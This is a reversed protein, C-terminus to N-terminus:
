PNEYVVKASSSSVRRWNINEQKLFDYIVNKAGQVYASIFKGCFANISKASLFPWILIAFILQPIKDGSRKSVGITSLISFLKVQKIAEQLENDVSGIAFSEETSNRNLVRM